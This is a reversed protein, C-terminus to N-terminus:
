APAGQTRDLGLAKALADASLNIGVVLICLAALPFLTAWPALALIDRSEAIMLGWDPTPPSVGVGLFSLSSFALLMWSLRMAYEVLLIDLVNPILERFVITTNREGRARAATIFDRAVFDLTAGRAVRTVGIGYLIGLIIILILNSTGFIGIILLLFLLGPAALLADIIRMGVEDVRGGVYGFLIGVTGGWSIAIISAIVTVLLASRGGLLVRSFVDRGFEDTGFFHEGSPTKMINQASIDTPSHPVIWPSIITVLSFVFVITFGILGSKSRRINRWTQALRGPHALSTEATEATEIVTVAM